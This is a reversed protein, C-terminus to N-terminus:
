SSQAPAIGVGNDDASVDMTPVEGALLFAVQESLQDLCLRLFRIALKALHRASALVGGSGDPALHLSTTLNVVDFFAFVGLAPRLRRALRALCALQRLAPLWMLLFALCSLREGILADVLM